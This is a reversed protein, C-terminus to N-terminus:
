KFMRAQNGCETTAAVVIAVRQVLLRVIGSWYIITITTKERTEVLPLDTLDAWGIRGYEQEKRGTPAIIMAGTHKRGEEGESWEIWRIYDVENFRIFELDQKTEILVVEMNRLYDPGKRDIEIEWPEFICPGPQLQGGLGTIKTRRTERLHVRGLIGRSTLTRLSNDQASFADKTTVPGIEIDVLETHSIALRGPRFCLGFHMSAWSWTPHNSIRSFPPEIKADRDFVNVKTTYGAAWALEEVLNSRWVGDLYEQDPRAAAIESAIGKLARLKDTLNTLQQKFYEELIDVWGKREQRRRWSHDHMSKIVDELNPLDNNTSSCISEFESAHPEACGWFLADRTWLLTRSTMM